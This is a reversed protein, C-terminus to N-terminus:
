STDFSTAVPVGTGAPAAAFGLVAMPGGRARCRPARPAARGEARRVEPALGSGDPATILRRVAEPPIGSRRSLFGYHRVKRFGAPLVHQPFRRLPERAGPTMARPRNSGVRRYRSTVRGSDRPVIRHDGIAVRFAYRALYGPAARGDGAAQAHVAWDRGWVAPDVRDLLGGRGLLDRFKARFVVALARAPVPFDARAPLRRPGDASLGGGPVVYHVHPHYGPARGRTHPVGSFGLRDTGVFRPDAALARLAGSSAELLAAYAARPHGRALARFEAPPTFTVLFHPV